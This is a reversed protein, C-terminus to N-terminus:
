FRWRIGNVVSNINTAIAEQIENAKKSSVHGDIFLINPSSSHRFIGIPTAGTSLYHTIIHRNQTTCNSNPSEPDHSDGWLIVSSPTPIQSLKEEDLGYVNWGYGLNKAYFFKYYPEYEDWYTYGTPDKVSSPCTWVKSNVAM